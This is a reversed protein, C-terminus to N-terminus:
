NHSASIGRMLLLIAKERKRRLKKADWNEEENHQKQNTQNKDKMKGM